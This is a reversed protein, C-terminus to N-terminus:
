QDIGDDPLLLHHDFRDAVAQLGDGADGARGLHPLPLDHQHDIHPRQDLREPPPRPFHSRVHRNRSNRIEFKSHLIEFEENKIRFEFNMNSSKKPKVVLGKPLVGSGANKNSDGWCLSANALSSYATSSFSRASSTPSMPDPFVVSDRASISRMPSARGTTSSILGRRVGACSSREM